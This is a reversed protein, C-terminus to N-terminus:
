LDFSAGRAKFLQFGVSQFITLRDDTGTALLHQFVEDVVEDSNARREPSLIPNLVDSSAPRLAQRKKQAQFAGPICNLTRDGPHM